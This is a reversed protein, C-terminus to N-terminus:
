SGARSTSAKLLALPQPPTVWLGTCTTMSVLDQRVAPHREQWALEAKLIRTHHIVDHAAAVAALFDEEVAHVPVIENFGRCFRSGKRPATVARTQRRCFMPWAPNPHVTRHTVGKGKGELVPVTVALQVRRKAWAVMCDRSEGAWFIASVAVNTGLVVTM